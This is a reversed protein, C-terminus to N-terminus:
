DIVKGTRDIDYWWNGIKVRAKNGKFGFAAEFKCPIVLKGDKDIFGILNKANRVAALGSSFDGAYKWTCPIVLKGTKDIYGWKDNEDMVAALGESDTFAAYKWICPSIHNNSQDIFGYRGNDCGDYRWICPSEKQVTSDSLNNFIGDAECDHAFSKSGAMALLCLLISKIFFRKM